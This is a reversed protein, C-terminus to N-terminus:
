KTKEKLKLKSPYTWFYYEATDTNQAVCELRAIHYDGEDDVLIDGEYVEGGNKDYGVFQAVTEPKVEFIGGDELRHIGVEKRRQYLDGYFYTEGDIGLGRFKIPRKM